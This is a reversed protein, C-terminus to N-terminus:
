KRKVEEDIEHGDKFIVKIDTKNIVKVCEILKRVIIDDYETITCPIKDLVDYIEKQQYLDNQEKENQSKLVRIKENLEQEEDYLKQFEQDLSDEEMEGSAILSIFDNRAKDIDLLRQEAQNLERSNSSTMVTQINDIVLESINDSCDYYKNIAKVIADHLRDEHISPSKHCFRSGHDLRNICRWVIMKGRASKWTVRKYASGCENCILIESLAYKSSYKGQKTKAKDSKQRKSARRALEQQARNFTDRDIIPEHANSVLYKPREGNNKVAKHSICDITYTKQLLADGVYKENRLISQLGTRSWKENGLKTPVNNSDLQKAISEISLGDLFM